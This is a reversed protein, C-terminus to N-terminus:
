GLYAELVGPDKQIQEPTGECIKKGFNICTIRDSIGIVLNMDHAVVIITTGLEDRIKKIIKDVKASEEAGMGGTPEDMLLLKPEASMARAIQVLQREVWVLDGAFHDARDTLGVLDLYELAAKKIKKEQRSTTFPARLFTGAIDNKTHSHAGTMVNELVSLNPALKGAQFTRCMGMRAIIHPKLETVDKSDFFVKGSTASLVGSVVNFFTSKGSGNPGILGHVDGKNVALDLSDIARLGIFDKCLGRTELIYDAL